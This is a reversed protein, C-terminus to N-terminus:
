FNQNSQSISSTGQINTLTKRWKWCLHAIDHWLLLFHIVYPRPLVCIDHLLVIFSYLLGVGDYLARKPRPKISVIGEGCNPKRLPTKRALWKALLSLKVLVVLLCFVYWCYSIIICLLPGLLCCYLMICALIHGIYGLSLSRVSLAQNLRRKRCGALFHLPRIRVVGSGVHPLQVRCRPPWSEFERGTSWLDPTRVVRGGLWVCM